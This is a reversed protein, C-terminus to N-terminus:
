NEHHFVASHDIYIQNYGMERFNECVVVTDCDFTNLRKNFWGFRVGDIFPKASYNCFGNFTSWYDKLENSVFIQGNTDNETKRTAWSDYFNGNYLSIGSIIDFKKNHIEEASIIKIADELNYRFDPEIYIIREFNNINKINLCNNRAQALNKVRDSNIISPYYYTNINESKFFANKFINFDLLSIQQVTNDASDNEYISLSFDYKEKYYSVFNYIQKHWRSVFHQRNRFISCLLIEKKM